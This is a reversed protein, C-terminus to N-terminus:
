PFSFTTLVPKLGSPLVMKVSSWVLTARNQSTGVRDIELPSAALVAVLYGITPHDVVEIIRNESVLGASPIDGVHSRIPQQSPPVNVFLCLSFALSPSSPRRFLEYLNVTSNHSVAVPRRTALQFESRGKM